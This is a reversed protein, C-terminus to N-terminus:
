RAATRSSSPATLVAIEVSDSLLGLRARIAASGPSTLAFTASLGFLIPQPPFSLQVTATGLLQAVALNTSTIEANAVDIPAGTADMGRIEAHLQQGAVLTTSDVTIILRGLSSPDPHETSGTSEAGSSAASDCAAVAAALLFCLSWKLRASKSHSDDSVHAHAM